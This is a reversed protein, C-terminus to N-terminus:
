AAQVSAQRQLSLTIMVSRDPYDGPAIRVHIRVYLVTGQDGFVRAYYITNDVVTVESLSFTSPFSTLYLDLNPAQHQVPSFLTANLSQLYLNAARLVLPQGAAGDVFFDVAERGQAEMALTRPNSTQSGVDMGSIRSLDSASIEQLVYSSDFRAAPAWVISVPAGATGANNVALVNFSLLGPGLGGASYTTTTRSITDTTSGWSVVYGSLTTDSGSPALWQLGVTTSNVSLAKLDRPRGPAGGAAPGELNEGCGVLLGAMCAVVLGKM